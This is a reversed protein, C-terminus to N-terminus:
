KDVTDKRKRKEYEKIALHRIIDTLQKKLYFNESILYYIIYYLIIISLYIALDVGRGIGVLKSFYTLAPINNVLFLAFLWFFEWLLFFGLPLNKKKFYSFSTKLILSAILISIIVQASTM